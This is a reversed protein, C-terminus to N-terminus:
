KQIRRRKVAENIESIIGSVLIGALIIISFVM